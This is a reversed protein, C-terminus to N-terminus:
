PRVRDLLPRFQPLVPMAVPEELAEVAEGAVSEVAAPEEPAHEGWEVGIGARIMTSVGVLILLSLGGLVHILKM